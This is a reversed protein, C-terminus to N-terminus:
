ESAAALIEQLVQVLARRKTEDKVVRQSADTTKSKVRRYFVLVPPNDNDLITQLEPFYEFLSSQKSINEGETSTM